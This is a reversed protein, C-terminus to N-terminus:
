ERYPPLDRGPPPARWIEILQPKGSASLVRTQLFHLADALSGDGIVAAEVQNSDLNLFGYGTVARVSWWHRSGGFWSAGSNVLFGLFGGEDAAEASPFADVLRRRESSFWRHTYGRSLLARLCVNVDYDGLGLVSRHPNLGLFGFIGSPPISAALGEGRLSICQRDFDAHSFAREQLLNNCAHLGCM